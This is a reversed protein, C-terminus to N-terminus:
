FLCEGVKNLKHREPNLDGTKWMAWWREQPMFDFSYPGLGVVPIGLRRMMRRSKKSFHQVAGDM